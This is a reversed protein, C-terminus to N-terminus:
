CCLLQLLLVAKGNWNDSNAHLALSLWHLRLSLSLSVHM